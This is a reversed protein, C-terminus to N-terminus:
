ETIKAEDTPASGDAPIATEVEPEPVVETTPEEAPVPEYPKTVEETTYATTGAPEPQDKSAEELEADTPENYVSTSKSEGNALESVGAVAPESGEFLPSAPDQQQHLRLINTEGLDESVDGATLENYQWKTIETAGENSSPDQNEGKLYYKGDVEYAPNKM